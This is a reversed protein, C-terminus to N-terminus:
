ISLQNGCSFCFKASDTNEKGCKPCYKSNDGVKTPEEVAGKILKGRRFIYMPFAIIWLLLCFILWGVATSLGPQPFKKELNRADFFVWISSGIVILAILIGM